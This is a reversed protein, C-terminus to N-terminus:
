HERRDGRREDGAGEGLPLPECGEDEEGDQPGDQDVRQDGMPDPGGVAPQELEAGEVESTAGDDVGRRAQRGQDNGNEDAPADGVAFPHLRMVHRHGDEARAEQPEAPEAEVGARGKRGAPERGAREDDGVCCGCCGGQRPDARAVEVM